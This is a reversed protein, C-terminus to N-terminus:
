LRVPLGFLGFLDPQVFGHLQAIRDGDLTLVQIAQPTYGAGDPARGYLGFAPQTNASTRRLRFPGPGAQSWAWAFFGRVAAREAYWEPMPPTSLVMDEALLGVFGGLDDSEWAAVYRALLQREAAGLNRRRARQLGQQLTARTRHHASSVAERSSDLQEAVEAVPLGVVDRM